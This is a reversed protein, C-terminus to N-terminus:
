INRLNLNHRIIYVVQQDKPKSDSASSGPKRNKMFNLIELEGTLSM